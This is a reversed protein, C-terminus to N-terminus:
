VSNAETTPPRTAPGPGYKGGFGRWKMGLPSAGTVMYTLCRGTVRETVHAHVTKASATYDKNSQTYSLASAAVNEMWSFRVNTGSGGVGGSGLLKQLGWASGDGGMWMTEWANSESETHSWGRTFTKGEEIDGGPDGMNLAGTRIVMRKLWVDGDDDPDDAVNEKRVYGDCSGTYVQACTGGPEALVAAVADERVRIDFTWDPQQFSGGLEPLLKQVGAVWYHTHSSLQTLPDYLDGAVLPTNNLYIGFKYVNRVPDYIGFGDSWADCNAQYNLRWEEHGLTMIDHWAGNYLYISKSNPIILNDYATALQRQSFAGLGPESLTFSFDDLVYGTLIYSSEPCLVLLQDRVPFLAVIPEGNRTRFNLGGYREPTFLESGYLTDPAQEDGAVWLRDHYLACVQGRPFREFSDPAVEGLDLTAIGETLTTIGLDRRTVFRIDGGDVTRWFEIHTVRSDQATTPLNSWTIQTSGSNAFSASGVSLPSREGVLDDWFSIYGIHTGAPGSGGGAALTPKTDPPQLGLTSCRFHEDFMVNDNFQGIIYVRGLYTVATGFSKIVQIGTPLTVTNATGSNARFWSLGGTAGFNIGATQNVVLWPM